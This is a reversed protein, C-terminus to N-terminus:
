SLLWIQEFNPKDQITVDVPRADFHVVQDITM